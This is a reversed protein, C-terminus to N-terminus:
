NKKFIKNSFIFLNIEIVNEKYNFNIKTPRPDDWIPRVEVDLPQRLVEFAVIRDRNLGMKAQQRTIVNVEVNPEKFDTTTVVIRPMRRSM